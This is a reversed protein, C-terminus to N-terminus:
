KFIKGNIVKMAFRPSSVILRTLLIIIKFYRILKISKSNKIALIRGFNQANLLQEYDERQKLQLNRSYLELSEKIHHSSAPSEFFSKPINQESDLNFLRVLSDLESRYSSFKSSYQESTVRYKTLPERFNYLKGIKSLRFWLDYDEAGEFIRRYGGVDVVTAKRYMVSPHAMANQYSLHKVIKKHECPYRKLKKKIGEGFIELSSGVCVYGPNSVLFHFQTQIREPFMIDDSDIRAVFDAKSKELGLNLASVIGPINSTYFKIKDSEFKLKVLYEKDVRDLVVIINEILPQNVVSEITETFYKPKGFVPIVVDVGSM